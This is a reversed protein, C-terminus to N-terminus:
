FVLRQGDRTAAILIKRNSDRIIDEREDESLRLSQEEEFLERLGVLIVIPSEM